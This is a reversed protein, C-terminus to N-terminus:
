SSGRVEQRPFPEGVPWPDGLDFWEAQSRQPAEFELHGAADVFARQWIPLAEVGVEPDPHEWLTHQRTGVSAPHQQRVLLVASVGRHDWHDGAYWFGDAQRALATGQAGNPGIPIRLVDTGYLANLIDYDRITLSNSAVAIVFPAGLDGYASGKDSLANRIGKEDSIPAEQGRSIMGLPRVGERGRAATTKALAHFEIFWDADEYVLAPLDEARNAFEYDDPNLGGLWSELRRRLPRARLPAAGQEVVDIWLFFNPSSLKDLSDYVDNRRATAGVEIDSPSASRAEFYISKGDKVALFDPRRNTGNVKPHCTVVYGMRVLCEHLYLEFFAGNFQRDDKSRLRGRVDAQADPCLRSFWDEILDRVQEWYPGAVRDLFQFRSEGHNAQSPDTRSTTSFISVSCEVMDPAGTRM